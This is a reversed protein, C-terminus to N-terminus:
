FLIRRMYPIWRYVHRSNSGGLTYGALSDIVNKPTYPAKMILWKNAVNDRYYSTMTNTRPDHYSRIWTGHVPPADLGTANLKSGDLTNPKELSFFQNGIIPPDEPNLKDVDVYVVFAKPDFLSSEANSTDPDPEQLKILVEAPLTGVGPSSINQYNTTSYKIKYNELNYEKNTYGDPIGQSNFGNAIAALEPDYVVQGNNSLDLFQSSPYYEHTGLPYLLNNKSSSNSDTISKSRKMNDPFVHFYKKEIISSSEVGNTAFIKVTLTNDEYPLYLKDIYIDSMTNPDSGDYTYYINAPINSEILIFKPKGSVIQEESETITLSIISM